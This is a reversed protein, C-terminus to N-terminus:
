AERARRFVPNKLSISTLCDYGVGAKSAEIPRLARGSYIAVFREVTGIVETSTLAHGSGLFGSHRVIVPSGSMGPRTASDLYPHQLYPEAAISGRKWIPTFAAGFLGEPFGLIFCDMGVAAELRQEQEVETSASM